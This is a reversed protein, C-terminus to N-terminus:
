GMSTAVRPEAVPEFLSWCHPSPSVLPPTPQRSTNDWPDHTLQPSLRPSLM